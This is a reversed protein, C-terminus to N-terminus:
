NEWLEMEQDGVIGVSNPHWTTGDIAKWILHFGTPGAVVPESTLPEM